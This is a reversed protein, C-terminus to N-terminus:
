LVREKTKKSGNREINANFNDFTSSYLLLFVPNSILMLNPTEQYGYQM